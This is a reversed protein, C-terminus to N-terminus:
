LNVLFVIKLNSLKISLLVGLGGTQKKTNVLFYVANDGRIKCMPPTDWGTPQDNNSTATIWLSLESYKPFYHTNWLINLIYFLILM